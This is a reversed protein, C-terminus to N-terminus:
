MIVANILHVNATEAVTLVPCLPRSVRVKLPVPKILPVKFRKVWKLMM